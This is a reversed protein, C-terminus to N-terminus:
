PVVSRTGEWPYGHFGMYAVAGKSSGKGSHLDELLLDRGLRLNWDYLGASECCSTEGNKPWLFQHRAM